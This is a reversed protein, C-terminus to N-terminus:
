ADIGWERCVCEIVKCKPSWMAPGQNIGLMKFQIATRNYICNRLIRRMLRRVSTRAIGGIAPITYSM